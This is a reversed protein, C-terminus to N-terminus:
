IKSIDNGDYKLIFEDISTFNASFARIEEFSWNWWQIKLLRETQFDSFRKKIIKAPVGGVITYPAVNKTVIAGAAIIAGDGVTIGDMILVNNGIWVDNGIECVFQKNADLFTHEGFLQKNVFTFGSQKMLSFFAPHISVFNQSPHLGLCTRVNEGIACFRGVKANKITSGQAIYSGIGLYSDTVDCNDNILNNGEFISNRSIIVNNKFFIKKNSAAIRRLFYQKFFNPIFKKIM